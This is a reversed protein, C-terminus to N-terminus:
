AAGAESIAIKLCLGGDLAYAARSSGESIYRVPPCHQKLFGNRVEMYVMWALHSAPALKARIHARATDEAAKLSSKLEDFLKSGEREVLPKAALKKLKDLSITQAM